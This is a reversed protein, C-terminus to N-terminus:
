SDQLDCYLGTTGFNGDHTRQHVELFPLVFKQKKAKLNKYESLM